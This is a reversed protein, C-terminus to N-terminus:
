RSLKITYKILAYINCVQNKRKKLVKETKGQIKTPTYKEVERTGHKKDTYQYHLIKGACNKISKVLINKETINRENSVCVSM